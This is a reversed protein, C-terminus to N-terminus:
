EIYGEKQAEIYVFRPYEFDNRGKSLESFLEEFAIIRFGSSLLAQFYQELPRHIHTIEGLDGVQTICFNSTMCIQNKYNFWEEGDYQWYRPWFCPHPITILVKGGVKLMRNVAKCVVLCNEVNSLVMNLICVDEQDICEKSYEEISKNYYEISDSVNNKKALEISKRSIDIGVVHECYKYIATTIMGSGCGCDIANIKKNRAIEKVQNSIRPFLIYSFSKDNGQIIEKTRREVISDWELAINGLQKYKVIKKVM